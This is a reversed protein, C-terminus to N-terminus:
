TFMIDRVYLNNSQNIPTRTTWTWVSIVWANDERYDGVNPSSPATISNTYQVSAGWGGLLGSVKDLTVTKGDIDPDGTGCVTVRLDELTLTDAQPQTITALDCTSWWSSEPWVVLEGDENVLVNKFTTWVVKDATASTMNETVLGSRDSFESKVRLERLRFKQAMIYLDLYITLM